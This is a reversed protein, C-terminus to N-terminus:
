KLSTIVFAPSKSEEEFITITKAGHHAMVGYYTKTQDVLEKPLCLSEECLDGECFLSIEVGKITTHKYTTWGMLYNADVDFLDAMKKIQKIEPTRKDNEWLCVTSRDVNLADALDSQRMKKDLRCSRIYFGCGYEVKAM